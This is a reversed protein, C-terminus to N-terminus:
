QAIVSRASRHLPSKSYAPIQVRDRLCYVTMAADEAIGKVYVADSFFRAQSEETLLSFGFSEDFVVGSPRALDM